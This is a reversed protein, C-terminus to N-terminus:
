RFIRLISTLCYYVSTSEWVICYLDWQAEKMLRRMGIHFKELDDPIFAFQRALTAHVAVHNEPVYKKNALYIVCEQYM